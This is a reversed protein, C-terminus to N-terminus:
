AQASSEGGNTAISRDGYSRISNAVAPGIGAPQSRQAPFEAKVIDNGVNRDSLGRQESIEVDTEVMVQRDRNSFAGRLRIGRRALRPPRADIFQEPEKTPASPTTRELNWNDSTSRVVGEAGKLPHKAAKRSTACEGRRQKGLLPT